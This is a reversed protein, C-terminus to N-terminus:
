CDRISPAGDLSSALYHLGSRREIALRRNVNQWEIPANAVRAARSPDDVLREELGLTRFLTVFRALGRTSNPVAVFPVNFMISFVCGHFSDTVVLGAGQITALWEEVSPYRYTEPSARLRAYSQPAAPLMPRSRNGLGRAIEATILRKSSSDDLMYTVVREGVVDSGRSRRVSATLDGYAEVPVLMTPDIMRKAGISCKDSLFNVGSDERVSVATFKRLLRAMSGIEAPSFGPDDLGFSPAYAVRRGPWGDPVFSLLYDDVHAYDPRWVQDSGVVFDRFRLADRPNVRRSKRDFVNALAIQSRAFRLLPATVVGASLREIRATGLLTEGSVLSLAGAVTHAVRRRLRAGRSTGLASVRSEWGLDSLARQLAWAQLIGGYNPNADPPFTLILLPSSTTRM